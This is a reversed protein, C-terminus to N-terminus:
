KHQVENTDWEQLKCLDPALLLWSQNESDQIIQQWRCVWNQCLYEQSRRLIVGTM